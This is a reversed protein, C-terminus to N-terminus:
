RLLTVHGTRNQANPDAACRDKMDIVYFYSGDPAADARINAVGGNWGKEVANTEYIKQGWRNFIEMRFEDIALGEVQFTDNQGDGNPTFVNPIFAEGRGLEAIIVRVTDTVPCGLADIANFWYDGQSSVELSTSTAGTSWTIQQVSYPPTITVTSAVCTTIDALPAYEPTAQVVITDTATCLGDTVSVIYSGPAFVTILRTDAGTSWSYADFGGGADLQISEGNCLAVPSATEYSFSAPEFTIPRGIFVTDVCVPDIVGLNVAYTGPLSYAQVPNALTSSTGNGLDWIFQSSGTSQNTFEASYGDCDALLEVDFDATLLPPAIVNVTAFATDSLNCSAPDSGILRVTYTGISEYLHQVNVGQVSPSGDGLDWTYTLANGSAEFTFPTGSCALLDTADADIFAQVGQEFNMKFVGLNCNFSLLETSYAGPTTPFSGSCAACVAQYVIGDKDFRSTGGDVHEASSGGFFTAYDLAAADQQLVMLYFDSGDTTTQFAGPTTFLGTTSSFTVGGSVFNTSGGWASFYIQGCTSVLFASPSLNENGDGGIRTSWLSQSLDNSFKQIFQTANPNAYVGSSVPFAGTTQGVVYVDDATDLQVFYSQDFGATGVYTTGVLLFPDGIYRAIFGDVGGSNSPAFSVGSSPLDVSQTGGTMFVDGTSSVQVGLGVDLGTGGHYTAWTMTTLGPDMRFLYADLGGALTPQSVGPSTFLGDSATTTAIIPHDQADVIIEGRFPDGYNRLLPASQNLGDNESGGVYTSGVLATATANLHVVVIDSGNPFSVGYTGGFPTPSGGGFSDDSCGDTTPFDSSATSGLIFLENASNVVMSHPVDSAAGGIYTCWELSSGDLAYKTIGMDAETGNYEPQLVGLTTPYGINFVTGAGYLHGEEDYTATTGYNAASSGSFSAFVVVPDIILVHSADYGKPFAYTLTRGNMRYEVPVPTREGHVVQWAVPREEIVDGASTKVRVTGDVLSVRDAGEFRLQIASPDAGRHVIWDYKLGTAGSVRLDIGPYVAKLDVGGFVPVDSVWRAQDDGLFYNVHFPEQAFGAHGTTTAGMFRVQYAHMSLAPAQAHPDGHVSRAGGAMLVHTFRDHELFVAGGPSNARFLVQSPWQGKNQHFQVMAAESSPGHDHAHAFLAALLFTLITLSRTM